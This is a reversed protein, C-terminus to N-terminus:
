STHSLVYRIALLFGNAMISIDGEKNITEKSDKSFKDLLEQNELLLLVKEKLESIDNKKVLYGNQNNRLYYIEPKHLVDETIVPLGWYFAQNLGLGLSGPHVFVDSLKFYSNVLIPDIIKDLYIINKYEKIKQKLLDPLGEGIIICGYNKMNSHFFLEILHEVKKEKLIRGVFLINKKYPIDNKKKLVAKSEQIDPFSSFNLTNNAIFVKRINSRKIYKKQDPSYLIIADSYTHIINFFFYKIRNDPDLLNVGHNWYIIKIGYLKLLPYLFWIIVDKLHLFLIVVKIDRKLIEQLLFIPNFDLKLVNCELEDINELTINNTILTLDIGQGGLYTNIYNYVPIRYHFVKNSILAANLKKM